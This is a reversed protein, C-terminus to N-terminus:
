EHESEVKNEIISNNTKWCFIAIKSLELTIGHQVCSKMDLQVQNRSKVAGAQLINLLRSKEKHTHMHHAHMHKFLLVEM